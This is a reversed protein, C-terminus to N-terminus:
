TSMRANRRSQYNKKKPYMRLFSGYICNKNFKTLKKVCIRVCFAGIYVELKERFKIPVVHRETSIICLFNRGHWLIFWISRFLIYFPIRYFAISTQVCCECYITKSYIFCIYTNNLLSIFLIPYFTSYIFAHELTSRDNILISLLKCM